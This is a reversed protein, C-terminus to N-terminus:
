TTTLLEPRHFLGDTFLLVGTSRHWHLGDLLSLRFGREVVWRYLEEFLVQGEYIEVFSMELQMLVVDPLTTLAGLLVPMEYGQSDIKLFIRREDRRLRTLEEDLRRVQIHEDRVAASGPASGISAETVKMLSSSVSNASVHIVAEGDQEGCAVGVVDWLKDDAVSAALRQYVDPIPEFSIIRKQYGLERLKRGFIGDNAGVDVVLDVDLRQMLNMMQAVPHSMAQFRVVDFGIRRGLRKTQRTLWKKM